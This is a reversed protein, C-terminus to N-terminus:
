RIMINLIFVDRHSRVWTVTTVGNSWHRNLLFFKMRGLENGHVKLGEGDEHHLGLSEGIEDFQLTGEVVDVSM